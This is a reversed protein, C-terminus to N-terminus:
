PNESVSVSPSTQQLDRIQQDKARLAQKAEELEESKQGLRTKLTEIESGLDEEMREYRSLLQLERPTEGGAMRLADEDPQSFGPGHCFGARSRTIAAMVDFGEPTQLAASTVANTKELLESSKNITSMASFFDKCANIPKSFGLCTSLLGMGLAAMGWYPHMAFAVGAVLVVSAIVTNMLLCAAKDGANDRIYSFKDKFFTKASGGSSAPREEARGHSGQAQGGETGGWRFCSPLWSKFGGSEPAAVSSATM